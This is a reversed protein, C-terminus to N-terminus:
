KSKRWHLAGDIGLYKGARAFIIALLALVVIVGDNIFQLITINALSIAPFYGIITLAIGAIAAVNTLFGFVLCVGIILFAWAAFPHLWVIAATGIINPPVSVWHYLQSLSQQKLQSILSANFLASWGLYFFDLGLAVRLLFLVLRLHHPLKSGHESTM